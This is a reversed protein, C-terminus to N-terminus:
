FEGFPVRSFVYMPSTHHFDESFGKFPQHLEMEYNNKSILARCVFPHTDKILLYFEDYFGDYLEVIIVRPPSSKLTHLAGKLADSEAGEIDLKWVDFHGFVEVLRDITTLEVNIKQIKEGFVTPFIQVMEQKLSSGQNHATSVFLESEGMVSSIAAKVSVLNRHTLRSLRKYLDPLAEVAVVKGAGADLCELATFGINAGADLVSDLPKIFRKFLFLDVDAQPHRIDMLLKAAYAREHRNTLDFSIPAGAVVFTVFGSTRIAGEVESINM